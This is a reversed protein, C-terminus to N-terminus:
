NWPHTTLCVSGEILPMAIYAGYDQDIGYDYYKLIHPHTLRKSIFAEKCLKEAKLKCSSDLPIAVAIKSGDELCAQYVKKQGGEGILEELQVTDKRTKKSLKNHFYFNSTGSINSLSEQTQLCEMSAYFEQLSEM